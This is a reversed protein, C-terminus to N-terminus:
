GDAIYTYDESNNTNDWVPRTCLTLILLLIIGTILIINLVSICINFWDLYKLKELLSKM